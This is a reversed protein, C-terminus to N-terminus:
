TAARKMASIGRVHSFTSNPPEGRVGGREALRAMSGTVRKAHPKPGADHTRGANPGILAAVAARHGGPQGTREPFSGAGEAEPLGEAVLVRSIPTPMCLGWDAVVLM